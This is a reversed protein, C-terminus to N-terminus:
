GPPCLPLHSPPTLLALSRSSSRFSLSRSFRLPSPLACRLAAAASSPPTRANPCPGHSSAGTRPICVLADLRLQSPALTCPPLLFTSPLPRPPSMFVRNVFTKHMDAVLPKLKGFVAGCAM